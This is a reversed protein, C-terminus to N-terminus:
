KANTFGLAEIGVDCFSRFISDYGKMAAAVHKTVTASFADYDKDLGSFTNMMFPTDFGYAKTSMMGWDGCVKRYDAYQYISYECFVADRPVTLEFTLYPSGDAGSKVYSLEFRGEKADYYIYHLEASGDAAKTEKLIYYTGDGNATSSKLLYYTLKHFDSKFMERNCRTCVGNDTTHGLAKHIEWGCTRCVSGTTCTPPDYDHDASVPWIAGCIKCERPGNCVLDTYDHPPVEASKAGCVSCVMPKGCGMFVYDHGNEGFSIELGCDKCVGGETCNFSEFYHGKALGNVLGCETCAPRKGCDDDSFGHEHDAYFYKELYVRIIQCTQARTLKGTYDMKGNGVGTIIGSSVMYEMSERAWTPCSDGFQDLIGEKVTVEDGRYEMFKHMIVCTQARTLSENPLFKNNANGGAVNTSVGAIGNTVAWAVYPYYWDSEKVDLLEDIHYGSLDEGSINALLTVLQAKTLLSQPAFRDASMGNVIGNAYCLSVPDYFWQDVRVDAFPLQERGVYVDEVASVPIVAASLICCVTIFIILFRKM